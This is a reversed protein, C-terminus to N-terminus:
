APLKEPATLRYAFLTAGVGFILTGVAQGALAGPAGGVIAGVAVLPATGLTAKGWNAITSWHAKDLNNFAANAAFQAGAFYFSPAIWLCFFVFLAAAD